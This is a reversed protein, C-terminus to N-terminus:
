VNKLKERLLRNEEKLIDALHVQDFMGRITEDAEQLEQQLTDIRAAMTRVEEELMANHKETHRQEKETWSLQQGITDVTAELHRIRRMLEARSQLAAELAPLDSKVSSLLDEITKPTQQRSLFFKASLM